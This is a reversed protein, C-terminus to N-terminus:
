MEELRVIVMNEDSYRKIVELNIVQSDDKYALGNLSDLIIKAINDVDPKKTYDGDLILNEKKKKSLSKPPEFEAIILAKFPETSPEMDINYKSRFAWKVKDEFSSTKTPTYVKGTKTNVRPREKGIPKENIEFSFIM